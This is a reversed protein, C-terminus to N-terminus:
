VLAEERQGGESAMMRLYSYSNHAKLWDDCPKEKLWYCCDNSVSSDALYSSGNRLCSRAATRPLIDRNGVSARLLTRSQRKGHTVTSLEPANEDIGILEGEDFLTLQRM